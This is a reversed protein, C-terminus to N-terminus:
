FMLGMVEDELESGRLGQYIVRITEAREETIWDPLEWGEWWEPRCYELIEVVLEIPLALDNFIRRTEQWHYGVPGTEVTQHEVQNASSM